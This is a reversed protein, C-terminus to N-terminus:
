AQRAYSVMRTDCVIEWPSPSTHRRYAQVLQIRVLPRPLRGGFNKEPYKTGMNESRMQGETETFIQGQAQGGRSQSERFTALM